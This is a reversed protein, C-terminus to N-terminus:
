KTTSITNDMKMMTSKFLRTQTISCPAQPRARTDSLQQRDAKIKLLNHMKMKVKHRRTLILLSMFPLTLKTRM